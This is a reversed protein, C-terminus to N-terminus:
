PYLVNLIVSGADSKAIVSERQLAPATYTLTSHPPDRTPYRHPGDSPPPHM